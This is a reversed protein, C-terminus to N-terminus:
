VIACSLMARQVHPSGCASSTQGKVEGVVNRGEPSLIFWRLEAVSWQERRRGVFLLALRHSFRTRCIIGSPKRLADIFRLRFQAAHPTEAGLLLSNDTLDPPNIAGVARRLLTRGM